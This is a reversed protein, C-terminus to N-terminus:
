KDGLTIIDPDNEIPVKELKEKMLKKAKERLKVDEFVDDYFVNKRTSSSGEAEEQVKAYLEKDLWPQLAEFINSIMVAKDDADLSVNLLIWQKQFANLTDNIINMIYEPKSHTYVGWLGRSEPSKVFDELTDLLDLGVRLQFSQYMDSIEQFFPHPLFSIFKRSIKRRTVVTDFFKLQNQFGLPFPVASFVFDFVIGYVSVSEVPFEGEFIIKRLQTIKQPDTLQNQM